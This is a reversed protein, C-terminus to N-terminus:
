WKKRSQGHMCYWAINRKAQSWETHHDRGDMNSCIANKMGTLPQAGPPYYYLVWRGSCSIGSQDRPWSSERSFSISIGELVGAQFIRQVSADPPSCHVYSCLRVRILRQACMCACYELLCTEADEQGEETSPREPQKRTRATTLLAATFGPHLSGKLGHNEGSVRRPPPDSFWITARHKTKWPVQRRNEM